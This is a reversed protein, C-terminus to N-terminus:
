LSLGIKWLFPSLNRRVTRGILLIINVLFIPSSKVSNGAEMVGM